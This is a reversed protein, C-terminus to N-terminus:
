ELHEGNVKYSQVLMNRWQLKSEDYQLPLDSNPEPWSAQSRILSVTTPPNTESWHLRMVFECYDRRVFDYTELYNSALDFKQFQYSLHREFFDWNPPYPRMWIKQSGDKFQLEIKYQLAFRRPEPVFLLWGQLLRTWRLYPFFFKKAVPIEILHSSGISIAFINFIIFANILNRKWNKV